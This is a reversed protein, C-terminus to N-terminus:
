AGTGLVPEAAGGPLSQTEEILPQCKSAVAQGPSANPCGGRSTDLLPVCAPCTLQLQATGHRATGHRATGHRARLCTHTLLSAAQSFCEATGTDETPETGQSKM